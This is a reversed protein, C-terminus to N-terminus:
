AEAKEFPPEENEINPRSQNREYNSLKSSKRMVDEPRVQALLKQGKAM